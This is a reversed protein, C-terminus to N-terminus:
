IYFFILFSVPGHFIHWLHGLELSWRSIMLVFMKLLLWSSWKFFIVALTDVLNEKSIAQHGLKQDLHGLKSSSRSIMLIFMQAINM